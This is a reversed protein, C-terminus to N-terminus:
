CGPASKLHESTPGRIRCTHISANRSGLATMSDQSVTGGMYKSTIPPHSGSAATTPAPGTRDLAERVYTHVSDHVLVDGDGGCFGRIAERNPFEDLCVGM